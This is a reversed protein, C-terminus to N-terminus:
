ISLEVLGLMVLPRIPLEMQNRVVCARLRDSAEPVIYM